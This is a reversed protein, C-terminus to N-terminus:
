FCQELISKSWQWESASYAFNVPTSHAALMTGELQLIPAKPRGIHYILLILCTKHM